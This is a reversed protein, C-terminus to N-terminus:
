PPERSSQGADSSSTLRRELTEVLARLRDPVPEAAVCDFTQRLARRILQFQQEREAARQVQRLTVM